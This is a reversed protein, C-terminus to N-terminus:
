GRKERREGGGGERVSGLVRVRTLHNLSLPKGRIHVRSNATEPASRSCQAGDPRRLAPLRTPLDCPVPLLSFFLASLALFAHSSASM